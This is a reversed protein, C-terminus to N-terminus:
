EHRLAALPELTLARRVPGIAAAFAVGALVVAVAAFTLADVPEVGFLLVRLWNVLLSSVVLGAGMGVVVSVIAHRLVFCAVHRARAGLAIRLGIERTREGVAHSLVGYIGIAALLLSVAAVGAALRAAWTLRWASDDVLDELRHLGLIYADGDIDAMARRLPAAFQVPDGRGRLVMSTAGHWWRNQAWPEYVHPLPPKDMGDSRTDAVIGVVTFWPAQPHRTSQVRQGIGSRGPWCRRAVEASVIAVPPAGARDDAGFARGDLLPIRMEDFFNPDVSTFLAETCSPASEPATTEPRFSALWYGGRMPPATASTVGLVGPLAAARELIARRFQERAVWYPEASSAVAQAADVSTPGAAEVVRALHAESARVGVVLRSEHAFGPGQRHLADVSRLLLGSGTALVAALVFQAAILASALRRRRPGRTVAAGGDKLSEVVDTRSAHWAPLVGFLAGVTLAAALAFLAVTGDVRLSEAQLFSGGWTKPNPLHVRLWALLFHALGLGVAAGGLAVVTSETVFQRLLRGPSAGVATRVAVERGRVVGKLLLLTATNAALVIVLVIVAGLLALMFPRFEGSADEAAPVLQLRAGRPRAPDRQELVRSFADARQQAQELSMGATLRGIVTFDRSTPHEAARRDIDFPQLYDIGRSAVTFERPMVGAVVVERSWQPGAGYDQWVAEGVINPRGQFRRRWYAEQLLVAPDTQWSASKADPREARSFTRGLRPRAGTVEFFDRSVLAVTAPEANPDADAFTLREAGGLHAARSVAVAALGEFLGSEDRWRVFDGATMSSQTKRAQDLGVGARLDISWAVVLREHDRFPLPDLIVANVVAFVTATAGIALSATALITLTLGRDRRVQRWATRLDSAVERLLVGARADRCEEKVRTPAGFELRAQRLADDPELGERVLADARSELHFRFEDELDQDDLRRPLWSRLRALLGM